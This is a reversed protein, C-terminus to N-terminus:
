RTEEVCEVVEPMLKVSIIGQPLAGTRVACKGDSSSVFDKYDVYIM